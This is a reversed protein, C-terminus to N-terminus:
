KRKCTNTSIVINSRHCLKYNLSVEPRDGRQAIRKRNSYIGISVEEDLKWGGSSLNFVNFPLGNSPQHVSLAVFPLPKPCRQFDYDTCNSNKALKAIRQINFYATLIAIVDRGQMKYSFFELMKSRCQPTGIDKTKCFPLRELYEQGISGIDSVNQLLREMYTVLYGKTPIQESLILVNSNPVQTINQQNINDVVLYTKNREYEIGNLLTSTENSGTAFIVSVGAPSNSLSTGNILNSEAICLGEDKMMNEFLMQETSAEETDLRLSSM